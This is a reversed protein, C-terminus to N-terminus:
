VSAPPAWWRTFPFTTHSADPRTRAGRWWDCWGCKDTVVVAARNEKSCTGHVDVQMRWVVVAMSKEDPVLPNLDLDEVLRAGSTTNVGETKPM